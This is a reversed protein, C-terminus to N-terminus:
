CLSSGDQEQRKSLGNHGQKGQDMRDKLKHCEGDQAEVMRYPPFHTVIGSVCAKDCVRKIYQLKTITLFLESDAWLVCPFNIM